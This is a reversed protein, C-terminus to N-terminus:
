KSGKPPQYPTSLGQEAAVRTDSNPDGAQLAARYQEKAADRQEQLDLIRGLYIHSWAVTRPDQATELAKQFNTRAGQMDNSLTAARALVFYARGWERTKNTDQLVTAAIRQASEPDGAVLRQEATDLPSEARVAVLPTMIEPTAERAFRIQSALKREHAVDINFLLDGYSDLLGRPSKEFQQLEEQFYPTLVFGEEASRQARAAKEQPSVKTQMRIEIARVLCENVLQSANEKFSRSLPASSISPLLPELKKMSIQHSAALPDLIYHLYTHRVQLLHLGERSNGRDPSVVV